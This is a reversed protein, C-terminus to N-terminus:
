SARRETDPSTRIQFWVTKGGTYRTTGWTAALADVLALGRGGSRVGSRGLPALPPGEDLRDSVCVLAKGDDILVGVQLPTRAHLIANTVLESTLLLAVDESDQSLEAFAQRVFSRAVGASSPVAELDLRESIARTSPALHVHQRLVPGCCSVDMGGREVIPRLRGLEDHGLALLQADV